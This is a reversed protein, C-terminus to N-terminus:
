RYDDHIRYPCSIHDDDDCLGFLVSGSHLDSQKYPMLACEVLLDNSSSLDYFRSTAFPCDLDFKSNLIKNDISM